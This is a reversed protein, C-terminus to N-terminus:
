RPMMTLSAASNNASSELRPRTHRLTRMMASCALPLSLTEVALHTLAAEDNDPLSIAIATNAAGPEGTAACAACIAPTVRTM